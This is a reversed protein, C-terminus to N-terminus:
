FSEVRRVYQYCTEVDDEEPNSTHDHHGHV